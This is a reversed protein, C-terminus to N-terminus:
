ALQKLASSLKDLTELATTKRERHEDLIEQPANDVFQKNELKQDVKRIDDELKAIQKQLREREKDLDIIDAIPMILTSEEVVCQISGKAAPKDTMTIDSLRAMQKLIPEYEKIRGQTQASADKVLLVIKAGAPVNMDARASRIESIFKTVWNIEDVAEQHVLSPVYTPWDSTLLREGKERKAISTFIEETIYPMFPNLLRLIQELVWGTTGRIEKKLAEDGSALLPKTFELYWDCFNGWVFQYIAGASENFKYVDLSQEIATTTKAVEGIIWQNVTHKVAAPDFGAQPMAENM